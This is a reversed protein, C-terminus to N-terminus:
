PCCLKRRGTNHKVHFMPASTWLHAIASHVKPARRECQTSQFLADLHAKEQWGSQGLRQHSEVVAQQQEAPLRAIRAAASVSVKGAALAAYKACVLRLRWRLSADKASCLWRSKVCAHPARPVWRRGKPAAVATPVSREVRCGLPPQLHAVAGVSARSKTRRNHASVMKVDHRAHRRPLRATVPVPYAESPRPGGLPERGALSERLYL